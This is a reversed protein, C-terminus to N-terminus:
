LYHFYVYDPYFFTKFDNIDLPAIEVNIRKIKAGSVEANYISKIADITFSLPYEGSEGSLLLIRKHGEKILSEADKQIQGMNLKIRHINKNAARFGCYLCNNTCHNGAYLPAFLVMRKGYIEKKVKAATELLREISKQDDLALLESAEETSLGELKEAKILIENLRKKNPKSVKTLKIIKNYDLFNKTATANM